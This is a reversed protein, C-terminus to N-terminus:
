AIVLISLAHRLCAHEAHVSRTRANRPTAGSAPGGQVLAVLLHTGSRVVGRERKRREMVRKKKIESKPLGGRSAQALALKLSFCHMRRAVEDAV